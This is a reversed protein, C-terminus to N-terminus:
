IQFNFNFEKIIRMEMVCIERSHEEILKSSIEAPDGVMVDAREM